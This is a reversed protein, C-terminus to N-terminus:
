RRFRRLNRWLKTVFEAGIEAGIEAGFEVGIGAGIEPGGSSPVVFEPTQTQEM